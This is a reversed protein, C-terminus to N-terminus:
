QSTPISSIYAKRSSCAGQIRGLSVPRELIHPLMFDGVAAYYVAVDLKTPGSRGFLRRTPNTVWVTALDAESNVTRRTMPTLAWGVIAVPETTM